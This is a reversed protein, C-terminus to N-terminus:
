SSTRSASSQEDDIEKMRKYTMIGLDNLTKPDLIIGKVHYVQSFTPWGKQHAEAHHDWCLAILRKGRHDVLKRDNGMGVTDIHHVQAHKGCLVCSKYKLSQYMYVDIDDQIDNASQSLPVGFRIANTVMYSIFKRATTVDTNSFSFAEHETDYYFADKLVRKADAITPENWFRRYDEIIAHAKRVQKPSVNRGDTVHLMAEPKGDNLLELLKNAEEKSEVAFTVKNGLVSVVRGWLKM